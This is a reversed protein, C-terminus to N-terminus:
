GADVVEVEVGVVVGAATVTVTVCVRVIRWGVHIRWLLSKPSSGQTLSSIM